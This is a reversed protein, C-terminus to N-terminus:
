AHLVTFPFAVYPFQLQLPLAWFQYAPRTVLPPPAPFRTFPAGARADKRARWRQLTTRHRPSHTVQCNVVSRRERLSWSCSYRILGCRCAMTLWVMAIHHHYVRALCARAASTPQFAPVDVAPAFRPACRACDGTGLFAPPRSSGGATPAYSACTLLAGRTV